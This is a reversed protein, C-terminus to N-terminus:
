SGESPPGGARGPGPRMYFARLAVIGAGFAAGLEHKVCVLNSCSSADMFSAGFASSAAAVFVVVAAQVQHPLSYWFAKLKNM